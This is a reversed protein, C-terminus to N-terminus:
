HEPAVQRALLLVMGQSILGGHSGGQWRPQSRDSTGLAGSPPSLAPAGWTGHEEAGPECTQM